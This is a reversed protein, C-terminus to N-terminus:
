PLSCIYKNKNIYKRQAQAKASLFLTHAFDPREDTQLEPPTNYKAHLKCEAEFPCNNKSM